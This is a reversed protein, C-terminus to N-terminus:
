ASEGLMHRYQRFGTFNAHQWHHRWYGTRWEGYAGEHAKTFIDAQAIHELPSAHIPKSNVLKDFIAEARELTMDFGDVTRYSTSACRAVSLKILAQIHEDGKRERYVDISEDVTMFPLHWEGPQLEQVPDNLCERVEKALMQIHPEADSHDRLELFNDWETASVLCVMHTFPEIIRNVLAKHLGQDHLVRASAVADEMARQWLSICTQKTDVEADARMGKQNAGWHIPLAPDDLMAAVQKEFPIARSSAANRSFTRHTMVESHIFRPYRLLLTTLVKDPASANRSRLVTKASITTM